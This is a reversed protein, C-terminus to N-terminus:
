FFVLHIILGGAEALPVPMRTTLLQACIGLRFGKITCRYVKEILKKMLIMFRDIDDDNNCIYQADVTSLHCCIQNVNTREPSMASDM